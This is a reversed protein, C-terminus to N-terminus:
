RKAEWPPAFRVVFESPQGGRLRTFQGRGVVYATRVARRLEDPTKVPKGDVSVLADGIRLHDRFPSDDAVKKVRVTGNEIAVELGMGPQNLEFFRFPKLPDKLSSEVSSEVVRYKKNAIIQGGCRITSNLIKCNEPLYINGQCCLHTMSLTSPCHFDGRIIVCSALMADGDITNTFQCDGDIFYFGRV